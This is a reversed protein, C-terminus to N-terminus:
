NGFRGNRRRSQIGFSGDQWIVFSDDHEAPLNVTRGGGTLGSLIGDAQVTGGKKPHKASLLTLFGNPSSFIRETQGPPITFVQKGGSTELQVRHEVSDLNTVELANAQSALLTATLLALAYKM